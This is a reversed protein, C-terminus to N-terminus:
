IMINKRMNQLAQKEYRSVQVQSIGLCSATESQTYDRFYRCYIIQKDLESLSEMEKKVDIANDIQETNSYGTFDYFTTTDDLVTRDLSLTFESSLIATYVVDEPLEMFDCVEKFSPIKNYKQSLAESSKEYAKYIKLQEPTVKITRDRGVFDVIEGIIYPYAYTTFKANLDEKYNKYAKILGIIGVQFLDEISYYKSYKTAVKYILNQNKEIVQELTTSM